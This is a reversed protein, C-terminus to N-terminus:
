TQDRTADAGGLVPMSVDMLIVDPHLERAKRVAVQGNEAEGVVLMDAKSQLYTRLIHRFLRHDDSILVKIEARKEMDEFGWRGFGGVSSFQL